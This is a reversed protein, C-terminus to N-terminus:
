AYGAICVGELVATVALVLVLTSRVGVLVVSRSVVNGSGRVERGLGMCVWLGSVLCLGSVVSFALGFVPVFACL